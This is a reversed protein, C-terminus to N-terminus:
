IVWLTILVLIRWSFSYAVLVAFKTTDGDTAHPLHRLISTIFSIGVFVTAIIRLAIM